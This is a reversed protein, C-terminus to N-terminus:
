VWCGSPWNVRCRDGDHRQRPLSRLILGNRKSCDKIADAVLAVPKVTPHMALTQDRGTGFANVGPYTWVNTRYRGYQGLEFNNIHPATGVKFVAILEHRSRYFTGMGANSKSWVCVNKLTLKAARGAALLDYFHRWDMFAYAIGGDASNAGVHELTTTLFATFKDESMDGAPWRSTVAHPGRGLGSLM